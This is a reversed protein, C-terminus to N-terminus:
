LLDAAPHINRDLLHLLQLGDRAIRDRQFCGHAPVALGSKAIEDLVPPDTGGYVRDDVGVNAILGGVNQLGQRRLFFLHDAQAEADAASALVGQLLNPLFEIDRPLTDTLDLGLSQALKTRRFAGTM